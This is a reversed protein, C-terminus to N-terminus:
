DRKGLQFVFLRGSQAFNGDSPPTPARPRRMSGAGPAASLAGRSRRADNVRGACIGTGCFGSLVIKKKTKGDGMQGIRKNADIQRQTVTEPNTGLRQYLEEIPIKHDDIDLEQKLESLDKKDGKKVVEAKRRAQM